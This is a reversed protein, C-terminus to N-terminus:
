LIECVMFCVLIKSPYNISLDNTNVKLNFNAFCLKQKASILLNHYLIKTEYNIQCRKSYASELLMHLRHRTMFRYYWSATGVVTWKKSELEEGTSRSWDMKCCIYSFSHKNKKLLLLEKEEEGSVYWKKLQLHVLINKPQGTIMSSPRCWWM